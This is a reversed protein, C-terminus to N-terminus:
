HVDYHQSVRHDGFKGGHYAVSVVKERTARGVWISLLPIAEEPSTRVRAISTRLVGRKPDLNDNAM